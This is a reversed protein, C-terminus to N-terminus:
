IRKWKKIFALVSELAEIKGNAWGAVEYDKWETTQEIMKIEKRIFKRIESCAIEAGQIGFHDLTPHFFDKITKM